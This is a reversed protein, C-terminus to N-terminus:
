HFLQLVQFSFKMCFVEFTFLKGFDNLLFKVTLIIEDLCDKFFLSMNRFLIICCNWTPYNLLHNMYQFTVVSLFHIKGIM